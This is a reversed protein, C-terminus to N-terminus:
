QNIQVCAIVAGRDERGLVAPGREEAAVLNHLARKGAPLRRPILCPYGLPKRRNVSM